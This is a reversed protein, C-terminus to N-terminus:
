SREAWDITRPAACGRAARCSGQSRRRLSYRAHAVTEDLDALGTKFRHTESAPIGAFRSPRGHWGRLRGNERYGYGAIGTSSTSLRPDFGAVRQAGRCAANGGLLSAPQRKVDIPCASGARLDPRDARAGGARRGCPCGAPRARRDRGLRQGDPGALQRRCVLRTRRCIVPSCSMTRTFSASSRRAPWPRADIGTERWASASPTSRSALGTAPPRAYSRWPTMTPDTTRFSWSSRSARKRSFVGSRRPSM